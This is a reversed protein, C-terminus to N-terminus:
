SHKKGPDIEGHKCQNTIWDYLTFRRLPADKKLIVNLLSKSFKHKKISEITKQPLDSGLDEGLNIDQWNVTFVKGKNEKKVFETTM